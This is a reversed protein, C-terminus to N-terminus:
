MVGDLGEDLARVAAAGFRTGLLRDLATPTGGRLLHGLVVTRAEKGTLTTLEQAVAHGVGGLREAQDFAQGLVSREGNRPMAGEAVVVIAFNAGRAERGKIMRAVPELSFPIEPILIAHAGAAVGSNLAIWG